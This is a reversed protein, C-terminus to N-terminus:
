CFTIQLLLYIQQHAEGGNVTLRIIHFAIPLDNIHGPSDKFGDGTHCHFFHEKFSAAGMQDGADFRFMRFALDDQIRMHIGDERNAISGFERRIDIFVIPEM